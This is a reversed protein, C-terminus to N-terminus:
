REVNYSHQIDMTHFLRSVAWLTSSWHREIQARHGIDLTNLAPALGRRRGFVISEGLRQKVVRRRRRKQHILLQVEPDCEPLTVDGHELRVRNHVAVILVEVLTGANRSLEEGRRSRLHLLRAHPETAALGAFGLRSTTEPQWRLVHDVRHWRRPGIAELGLSGELAAVAVAECCRSLQM